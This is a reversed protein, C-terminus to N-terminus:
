ESKERNIETRESTEEFCASTFQILLSEAIEGVCVHPSMVYFYYTNAALTHTYLYTRTHRGSQALVSLYVLNCFATWGHM